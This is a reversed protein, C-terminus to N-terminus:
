LIDCLHSLPLPEECQRKPSSTFFNNTSIAFPQNGLLTELLRIYWSYLRNQSLANLPLTMSCLDVMGNSCLCLYESKMGCLYAKGKKNILWHGHLGRWNQLFNCFIVESNLLILITCRWIHCVHCISTTYPLHYIHPSLTIVYIVYYNFLHKITCTSAIKCSILNVIYFLCKSVM